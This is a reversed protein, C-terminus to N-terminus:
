QSVNCSNLGVSSSKIGAKAELNDNSTVMLSPQPASSQYENSRDNKNSLEGALKYTTKLGENQPKTMEQDGAGEM